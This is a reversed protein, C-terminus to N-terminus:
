RKTRPGRVGGFVVWFVMFALCGRGLWDGYRTYLTERRDLRVNRTLVGEIQKRRGNKDKVVDEIRGTPSIFASIGTNVSRVIGVRNEVARFACIALHEDLESSGEFWGDNSINVLFQAGNARFRRVLRPITDEYCILVGFKAGNLDFINVERGPSFGVEYPVMKALFPFYKKLPTYEGFPVLEIKDYRGLFKRQEELYRADIYYASNFRTVDADGDKKERVIGLSQGGVLLRMRAHQALDKLAEMGQRAADNLEQINIHWRDELALNLFGPVMTEPWVLMAAGQHVAGESLRLYQGLVDQASGPDNKISQPISGQITSIKPGVIPEYQRLRFTGYGWMGAVALGTVLVSPAVKVLKEKLAQASRWGLVVDAIAGNAMCLVFSIGYVGALDAVQITALNQYQSHGLYYWSFGGLVFSRVYELAVWCIPVIWIFGVRWRSRLARVAAGFALYYLSLFV